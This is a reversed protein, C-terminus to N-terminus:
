IYWPDRRELPVSRGDRALRFGLDAARYESPEHIRFRTRCMESLANFSGGRCVKDSDPFADNVPDVLPSKAYYDQDYSDRCWEWVNGHLDCLGFENAERTGVGHVRDGSNESYWAHRSLLGEDDGCCWEGDSGSGCAFEWEAETPLRCGIWMAFVSAEFWSVDTVPKRRDDRSLNLRAEDFTGFLENTVQTRAMDFPSLEVAHAPSEGYFHRTRSEDTGMLFRGGPLRRMEPAVYQEYRDRSGRFFANGLLEEIAARNESRLVHQVARYVARADKCQPRGVRDPALLRQATALAEKADAPTGALLTQPAEAVMDLERVGSRSVDFVRLLPFAPNRMSVIMHWLRDFSRMHMEYDIRSFNAPHRLHSHFVGAQFMGCAWLKKQMRWSEQPTAVFGANDHDAFYRGYSLFRPQWDDSNRINDEFLVFDTPRFPDDASILYGFSKHPMRAAIATVLRQQLEFPVVVLSQERTV